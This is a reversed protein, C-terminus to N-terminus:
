YHNIDIGWSFRINCYYESDSEYVMYTIIYKQNDDIKIWYGGDYIGDADYVECSEYSGQTARAVFADTIAQVKEPDNIVVEMSFDTNDWLQTSFVDVDMHSVFDTGEPEPFSMWILLLNDESSQSDSYDSNHSDVFSRFSDFDGVDMSAVYEQYSFYLDVTEEASLDSIIYYGYEDFETNDPVYSVDAAAPGQQDSTLDDDYDQTQAAPKSNNNVRNAIVVIAVVIATILALLALIWIILKKIMIDTGKKVVEVSAKSVAGKVSVKASASLNINALSAPMARFPVQEAEKMFLQSLFPLAMVAFLKTDKEKEYKEVEKKIKNKAFNIRRSVTGQPVGLAEAIEKTSMEDFYFLILTRRIDESLSNNIIDMVIRRMEESEVIADPLFDEPLAEVDDFFEDDMSDTKTRTLRNLAKNAASKKLWPLVKNKDKITDYSEILAVFTDQVVDEADTENKLLSFATWYVARYAENYIKELEENTM